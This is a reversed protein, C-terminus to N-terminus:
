PAAPSTTSPVTTPETTPETSPETTTISASDDVLDTPDSTGPSSQREDEADDPCDARSASEKAAQRDAKSMPGAWPPRGHCPDDAAPPGGPAGADSEDGDADDDPCQARSNSEKAAHRDEKSMPGAWPPRGHCPDDSPPPGGGGTDGGEDDHNGGKPCADMAAKKEDHDKIKAAESVCAGRTGQKGDPVDVQVVRLVDHAVGQAGGPLSDAMALGTSGALFGVIAAAAIGGWVFARRRPEHVTAATSAIRQLHDARTRPEIPNTGLSRLREQLEDDTV